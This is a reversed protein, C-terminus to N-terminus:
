FGYLIVGISYTIINSLLVCWFLKKNYGTMLGLLSVEFVYVGLELLPVLIIKPFMYYTYRYTFNILFNSILNLVFFYALVKWNRYKCVWLVITETVATILMATLYALM